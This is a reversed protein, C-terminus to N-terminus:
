SLFTSIRGNNQSLRLAVDDDISSSPASHQESNITRLTPARDWYVQKIDKVATPEVCVFREKAWKGLRRKCNPFFHHSFVVLRGNFCRDISYREKLGNRPKCVCCRIRRASLCNVLCKNADPWKYRGLLVFSKSIENTGYRSAVTTIAYNSLLGDIHITHSARQVMGHYSM